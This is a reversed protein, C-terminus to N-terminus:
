RIVWSAGASVRGKRLLWVGLLLGLAALASVALGVNVAKSEFVFCVEHEGPPVEVAKFVGFARLIPVDEGDVRASWGPYAADVLTLIRPGPLPGVKLVVRNATWDVMRILDNEDGLDSLIEAGQITTGGPVEWEGVALTIDLVEWDPLPIEVERGEEGSPGLEQAYGVTFQGSDPNRFRAQVTAAGASGCRLCLAGHRKPLRVTPFEVLFGEPATSILEESDPLAIRRGKKLEEDLPVREVQESVVRQRVTASPAAPVSGAGEELYVTTTPPFAVEKAPGPGQVWERALWCVRKCLLTARLNKEVDVVSLKREYREEEGPTRLFRRVDSLFLPEYENISPELMFLNTNPSVTIGRANRLAMMHEQHMHVGALEEDVAREPQVSERSWVVIEGFLCVVLLAKVGRPSPCHAGVLLVVLGAVPGAMRAAMGWTFGPSGGLCLVSWVGLLVPVGVAVLLASRLMTPRWGRCRRVAADVGRGALIGLPLCTLAMARAPYGMEFPAVLDVFTAMPLPKGLSCDLLLLFLAGFLVTERWKPHLLSTAALLVAMAGAARVEFALHGGPYTVFCQLLREITYHFGVPMGLDVGKSRMTFGTLEAAPILMVAAVLLAAAFLGILAAGGQGIARARGRFGDAEARTLVFLVFYGAMLIVLYMTLQPFGTLTAMGLIGAGWLAHLVRGRMTRSEALGRVILLLLPAWCVVGVWVWQAYVRRAMCASLMFVLAGTLAGLFSLEHRRGLCFTSVGGLLLHAGVLLYLSVFTGFPTPHINLLSRILHPPYFSATQPNAAFPRGCGVLPNWLPFAGEHIMCDMYYANPGFFYKADHRGYFRAEGASQICPWGWIVLAVSLLLAAAIAEKWKMGAASVSRQERTYAGSASPEM